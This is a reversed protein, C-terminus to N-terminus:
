TNSPSSTSATSYSLKKGKKTYLFPGRARTVAGYRKFLESFLESKNM